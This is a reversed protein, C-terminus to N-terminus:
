AGALDPGLVLVLNSLQTDDVPAPTPLPAVATDASLGLEEALVRAEPEYTEAYYVVSSEAPTADTPTATKYGLAKLDNTKAGAAGKTTTGNAVLVQVESPARVTSAPVSSDSSGGDPVSSDTVDGSPTSTNTQAGVAVQSTSGGDDRLLFFGILVAVVILAIGKTSSGQPAPPQAPRRRRRPEESSESM